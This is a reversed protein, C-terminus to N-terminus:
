KICVQKVIFGGPRMITIYNASKLEIITKEGPILDPITKQEIM